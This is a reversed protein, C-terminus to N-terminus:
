NPLNCIKQGSFWLTPTWLNSQDFWQDMLNNLMIVVVMLFGVDDRFETINRM